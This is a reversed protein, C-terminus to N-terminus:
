ATGPSGSPKDGGPSENGGADDEGGDPAEAPGSEPAPPAKAVGVMAARLVRDEIAYGPQLVQAVTGPALGADEIEFMAQHFNYDFAEGLPEIRRVGHKEFASLLGAETMQVGEVLSRVPEDAHDPMKAIAAADLARRLNDAVGLLDGAFNAVGFKRTRELERETRKRLNELEAMARLARDRAGALEVELDAERAPPPAASGEAGAPEGDGDADGAERAWPSASAAAAEGASDAADAAPPADGGNGAGQAGAGGEPAADEREKDSM